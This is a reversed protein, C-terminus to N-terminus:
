VNEGLSNYCACYWSLNFEFNVVYVLPLQSEDGFIAVPHGYILEM